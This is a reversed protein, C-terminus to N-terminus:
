PYIVVKTGVDLENFLFTIDDKYLRICGESWTQKELEGHIYIHGGIPTDWPIREDKDHATCIRKYTSEDIRQEEYAKEADSKNPYNLGLSLYFKSKPNKVCVQYEGEPTKMDGEFLKHGFEEKGIGIPFTKVLHNNAWFELIRNQKYIRLEM